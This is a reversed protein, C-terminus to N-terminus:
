CAESLVLPQTLILASWNSGCFIRELGQLFSTDAFPCTIKTPTAVFRLTKPEEDKM